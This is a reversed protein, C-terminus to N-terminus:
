PICQGWLKHRGLPTDDVRGHAPGVSQASGMSQASGVAQQSGMVPPPVAAESSGSGMGRPRAVVEGGSAGIGHGRHPDCSRGRYGSPAAGM